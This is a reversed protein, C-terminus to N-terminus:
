SCAPYGMKASDPSCIKLRHLSQVVRLKNNNLDTLIISGANVSFRMPSYSVQEGVFRIDKDDEDEISSLTVKKGDALQEIVERGNEGNVDTLLCSNATYCSCSSQKTMAMKWQTTTPSKCFHVFVKQNQKIAESNALRLFHYLKETQQTLAQQSFFRNYSPVGITVLISLVLITILLEILTFGTRKKM